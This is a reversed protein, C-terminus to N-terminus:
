EENLNGKNSADQQSMRLCEERLIKSHLWDIVPKLKNMSLKLKEWLYKTVWYKCIKSKCSKREENKIKL